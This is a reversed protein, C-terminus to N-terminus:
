GYRSFRDRSGPATFQRRDEPSLRNYAASDSRFFRIAHGPPMRNHREDTIELKFLLVDRLIMSYM